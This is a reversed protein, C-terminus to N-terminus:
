NYPRLSQSNFHETEDLDLTTHMPKIASCRKKDIKNKRKGKLLGVVEKNESYGLVRPRKFEQVPSSFNNKENNVITPVNNNPVGSVINLDTLFKPNMIKIDELAKQINRYLKDQLYLKKFQQRQLLDHMENLKPLTSNMTAELASMETPKSSLELRMFEHEPTISYEIMM